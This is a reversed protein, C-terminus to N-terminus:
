SVIRRGSVVTSRIRLWHPKDGPAWPRLGLRELRSIEAANTIEEVVGVVVVSWGTENEPELGDIQVSSTGVAAVGHVEVGAGLPVGGVRARTSSM